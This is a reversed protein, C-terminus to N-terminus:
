IVSRERLSRIADKDYGLEVLIDDTDEGLLPPPRRISGPTREFALPVGAQRLVGLAPHELDVTM